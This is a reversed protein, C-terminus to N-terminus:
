IGIPWIAPKIYRSDLPLSHTIPGRRAERRLSRLHNLKLQSLFGGAVFHRCPASSYSGDHAWYALFLAQFYPSNSQDLLCGVGRAERRPPSVWREALECTSLDRFNPLVFRLSVIPAKARAALGTRPIKLVSIPTAIWSDWESNYRYKGTKKTLLPM